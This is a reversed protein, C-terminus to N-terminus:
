ASQFREFGLLELWHPHEQRMMLETPSKGVREPHRSRIFTRHNLFFRLLDLYGSDLQKRLFFYNRLRSNLNEVLSSTRPTTAMAESVAELILHFKNPLLHHLRNWEQWYDVSSTKHKTLLCISRVLYVSTDFVQAVEQLKQDLVASFALLTSGQKSLAKRFVKIGKYSGEERIKLESIIFDMLKQREKHAPGALSLIDLRLWYFLTKVESALKLAKEEAQRARGLKFSFKHGEGKMKAKEMQSELEIRRTTAGQAKQTLHRCLTEGREFIHWLDGHCPKDGWAAKQGARIGKGGDAITYEPNLGREEAELLYYGWTDEDRHEAEELLFCYTSRADVGALVPRNGQFIEDLLSVEIPSLDESQNIKRAKRAAEGVQNHVTAISISYDFLDRLLEVVGRYSSHCIIILALILQSLWKRTVPLYFLVDENKKPKEFAQNLANRAIHGQQYLFKRSVREEEALGSITEQKTLVRLAIQQRQHPELRNAPFSAQNM